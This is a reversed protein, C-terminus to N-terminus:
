CIILAKKIPYNISLFKLSSKQWDVLWWNKEAYGVLCVTHNRKRSWFKYSVMQKKDFSKDVSIGIVIPKKRLLKEKLFNVSPNKVTYFDCIKFKLARKRMKKTIRELEEKQNRALWYESEPMDEDSVQGREALKRATDEIGSLKKTQESIAYLFRWSLNRKKLYSNAFTLACAVCASISHQNPVKPLDTLLFSDPYKM